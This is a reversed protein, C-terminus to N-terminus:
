ATSRLAALSASLRDVTPNDPLAMRSLWPLDVGHHRCGLIGGAIAAVTDTDGGLSVAYRLGDAPSLRSREAHRLVHVVAAATELADLSVGAPSPTWAGTAADLILDFVPAGAQTHLWDVEAVAVGVVTDLSAEDVAASAMASAVCAAGIARPDGHTTRSLGTTLARRRQADATAWGIPLARMVAGNTAGGTARLAGTSQFREVAALTSPGAGRIVPLAAALRDLFSREDIVAGIEALYSALLLTQATDDSTAGPPWDGRQPIRDIDGWAIEGPRYGEWPVGLADGAAYTVLGARVRQKLRTM